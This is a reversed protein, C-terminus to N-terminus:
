SAARTSVRTGVCEGPAAGEGLDLGPGQGLVELGDAVLEEGVDGEVAVRLQQEEGETVGGLMEFVVIFGHTSIM